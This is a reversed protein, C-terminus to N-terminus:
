KTHSECTMTELLNVSQWMILKNSANLLEPHKAALRFQHRSNSRTCVMAATTTPPVMQLGELTASKPLCRLTQRKLCTQPRNRWKSSSNFGKSSFARSAWWSTCCMDASWTPGHTFAKRSCGTGSHQICISERWIRPCSKCSWGATTTQHPHLQWTGEFDARSSVHVQGFCFSRPQCTQSSRALVCLAFRGTGLALMNPWFRARVSRSPHEKWSALSHNALSTCPVSAPPGMRFVELSPWRTRSEAPPLMEPFLKPNPLM